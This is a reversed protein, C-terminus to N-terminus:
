GIRTATIHGFASVSGASSTAKGVLYLTDTQGAAIEKLIVPVPLTITGNLTTTPIDNENLATDAGLVNTTESISGQKITTSAAALVLFVAGQVLWKGETLTVSTITTADGSVLLLSSGSARAGSLQDGVAAIIEEAADLDAKARQLECNVKEITLGCGM